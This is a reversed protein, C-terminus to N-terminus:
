KQENHFPFSDNSNDKLFGARSQIKSNRWQSHAPDERGIQPYDMSASPSKQRWIAWDLQHQMTQLHLRHGFPEYLLPLEVEGTWNRGGEAELYPQQRLSHWRDRVAPPAWEAHLVSYNGSRVYWDEQQLLPQLNARTGHLSRNRDERRSDKESGIKAQCIAWFRHDESRNRPM